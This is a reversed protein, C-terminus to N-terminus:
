ELIIIFFIQSALLIKTLGAKMEKQINKKKSPPYSHICPYFIFSM